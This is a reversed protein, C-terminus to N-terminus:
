EKVNLASVNTLEPPEEDHGNKTFRTLNSVIGFSLIIFAYAKAKVLQKDVPDITESVYVNESFLAFNLRGDQLFEVIGLHLDKYFSLTNNEEQNIFLLDM